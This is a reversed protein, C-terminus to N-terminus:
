SQWLGRRDGPGGPQLTGLRVCGCREQRRQPVVPAIRSCSVTAHLAIQDPVPDDHGEALLVLDEVVARQEDLVAHDGIESRGCLELSAVVELDGDVRAPLDHQGAEDARVVVEVARHRAAERRGPRGRQAEALDELPEPPPEIARERALVDPRARQDREDLADAVAGGGDEVVVRAGGAAVAAEVQDRVCHELAPDPGREAVLDRIAVQGPGPDLLVLAEEPLQGGRGGGEEVPHHPDVGGERDAVLGERAAALDRLAVARAVVDVDRLPALVVLVREPLVPHAGDLTQDLAPDAALAREEDVADVDVVVLALQDELALRVDDVVGFRVHVVRDPDSGHEVEERLPDEAPQPGVPHGGVHRRLHAGGVEDVPERLAVRPDGEDLRRREQEPVVRLDHVAEERHAEPRDLLAGRGVERDEVVERRGAEAGVVEEAV